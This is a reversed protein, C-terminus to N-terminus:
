SGSTRLSVMLQRPADTTSVPDAVDLRAACGKHEVKFTPRVQSQTHRCALKGRECGAVRMGNM